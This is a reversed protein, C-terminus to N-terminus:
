ASVLFPEPRACPIALTHQMGNASDGHYEILRALSAHKSLPAASSTWASGDYHVLNHYLKKDVLLSIVFASDEGTKRRVLFRGNMPAARLRAEAEPREIAGHYWRRCQFPTEKFPYHAENKMYILLSHVDKTNGFDRGSVTLAAGPAAQEILLHQIAEKDVDVFSLAWAAHPPKVGPKRKFSGGAGMDKVRVLFLGPVAGAMRLQAEAGARSSADSLYDPLDAATQTLERALNVAAASSPPQTSGSRRAFSASKFGGRKLKAASADGEEAPPTFGQSRGGVADIKLDAEAMAVMLDFVTGDNGAAKAPPKHTTGPECELYVDTAQQPEEDPIGVEQDTPPWPLDALASYEEHYRDPILGRITPMLCRKEPTDLTYSLSAILDGLDQNKLFTGLAQKVNAAEMQDLCQQIQQKFVAFKAQKDAM